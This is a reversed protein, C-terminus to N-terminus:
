ATWPRCHRAIRLSPFTGAIEDGVAMVRSEGFQMLRGIPLKVAGLLIDAAAVALEMRAKFPRDREIKAFVQLIRPAHHAMVHRSPSRQLPRWLLLTVMPHSGQARSGRLGSERLWSRGASTLKSPSHAAPSTQLFHQMLLAIEYPRHRM